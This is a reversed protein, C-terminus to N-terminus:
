DDGVVNAASLHLPIMMQNKTANKAIRHFTRSQSLARAVKNRYILSM